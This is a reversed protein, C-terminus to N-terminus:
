KAFPSSKRNSASISVRYVPLQAAKVHAVLATATGVMEVAGVKLKGAQLDDHFSKLSALDRDLAAKNTPDTMDSIAQETTEILLSVRSAMRRRHVDLDKVDVKQRLTYYSTISGVKYWVGKAELGLQRSHALVDELETPADFLMTVNVRENLASKAKLILENEIEVVRKSQSAERVFREQPQAPVSVTLLVWLLFLIRLTM